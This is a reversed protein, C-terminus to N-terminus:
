ARRHMAMGTVDHDLFKVAGEDPTVVGVVMNFTTTKGAGNPGLLGVIEGANVSISVGNVVRRGRYAKILGETKLLVQAAPAAPNLPATTLESDAPGAPSGHRSDSSRQSNPSTKSLPPITFNRPASPLPSSRKM